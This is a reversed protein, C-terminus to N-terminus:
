KKYYVRQLPGMKNLTLIDEMAKIDRVLTSRSISVGDRILKVILEEIYYDEILDDNKKLERRADIAEIIAARRIEKKKAQNNMNGEYIILLRFEFM